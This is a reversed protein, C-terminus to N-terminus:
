TVRFLRIEDDRCRKGIQSHVPAIVVSKKQDPKSHKPNWFTAKLSYLTSSSDREFGRMRM